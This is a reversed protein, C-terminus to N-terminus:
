DLFIMVNDYVNETYIWDSKIGILTLKALCNNKYIFYKMFLYMKALKRECDCVKTVINIDPYYLDTVQAQM